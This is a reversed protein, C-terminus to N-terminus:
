ADSCDVVDVNRSRDFVGDGRSERAKGGLSEVGSYSNARGEEGVEVCVADDQSGVLPLVAGAAIVKM